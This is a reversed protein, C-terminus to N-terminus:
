EGAGGLRTKLFNVLRIAGEVGEAVVDRDISSGSINGHVIDNRLKRLSDVARVSRAIRSFESKPLSLPLVINLLNNFTLEGTIQKIKTRSFGETRLVGLSYQRLLTESIISAEIAAIKPASTRAKVRIRYLEFLEDEPIQSNDAAEQLKKWKSFTVLQDSKFMPNLRRSAPLKPSFRQPAGGDLSWTVCEGFAVHTGFFEDEPIIRVWFLYRQNAASLLLAEFRNMADCYKEYIERAAAAAGRQTRLGDLISKPAPEYQIEMYGQPFTDVKKKRIDVLHISPKVFISVKANGLHLVVPVKHENKTWKPIGFSGLDVSRSLVLRAM